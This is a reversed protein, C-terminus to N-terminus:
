LAPPFVVCLRLHREMAAENMLVLLGPGDM